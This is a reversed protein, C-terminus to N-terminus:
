SHPLTFPEGVRITVRTRHPLRSRGPFMRHSGAIGVPLVSAGSRMALYAAGDKFSRMRGDRSRTGEPFLAIPRGDALAELSFRQAARDGEGRRVFYVGSQTALWGILPWRRMEIKAMFHVIRGIQHGTAWGLMPPDLNSCHNAVVIFAGNRPIREVGEVRLGFFLRCFGGIIAAGPHYFWSRM